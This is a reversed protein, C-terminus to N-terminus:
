PTSAPGPEQEQTAESVAVSVHFIQTTHGGRRDDVVIEVKHRGTQDRAPTWSLEGSGSDIAMGEPAEGLQYLLGRDGDRDSAQVRYRFVGSPDMPPPTSLIEPPSNGVRMIASELPTSESEGDSATVRVRIEDGRKLDKKALTERGRGLEAGNVIWAYEFRLRDRDPDEAVPEVVWEEEGDSSKRNQISLELMRPSRNGVRLRASIPDSQTEGDSAVVTVQISDGKELSPLTVVPGNGTLPRGRLEWSFELRVPDGDPDRAEVSARLPEGPLPASPSFSVHEVVPARNLVSTDPQPSMANGSARPAESQGCGLTIAAATVVLSAARRGIM